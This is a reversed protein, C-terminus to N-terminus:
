LGFAESTNRNPPLLVLTPKGMPGKLSVHVKPRRCPLLQGRGLRWGCPLAGSHDEIRGFIVYSEESPDVGASRRFSVQIYLPDSQTLFDGTVDGGARLHPVITYSPKVPLASINPPM